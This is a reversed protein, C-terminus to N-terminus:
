AAVLAFLQWEGDIGKLHHPGRDELIIDSGTILDHVTRSVLVEGARAEAMVRAALHVAIGRVDGDSRELEGTHLGSRISLGMRELETQLASACRVGRGPGDFIALIGDGTTQVLEGGFEDVRLRSMQDHLGILDRWNRDGLQEVQETSRVIDTFLVTAMIRDPRATPVSDPHVEAFFEQIAQLYSDPDEWIPVADAGPLEVLRSGAIHAALYRAHEVPVFAYETRHVILTPVHIASLLSRSDSSLMERVASGAAGPTAALRSFKAFWRRFREDGSQSPFFAGAAAETGWDDVVQGVVREVAEPPMGAPYGDQAVHKAAAHNLILASTREPRTAACLMAAPAGDLFGLPVARESGCADMVAVMEQVSAEWPPLVDRPVPDSSGSGRPDYRIIRCFAAWRRYFLAWEPREWEMDMSGWTGPGLVLDVPGDGIVQYAIRDDGLSAYGTKPEM